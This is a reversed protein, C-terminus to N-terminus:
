STVSMHSFFSEPRKAHTDNIQPTAAHGRAPGTGKTGPTAARITPPIANPFSPFSSLFSRTRAHTPITSPPNLM